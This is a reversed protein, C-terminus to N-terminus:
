PTTTAAARGAISPLGGAPPATATALTFAFTSGRGPESTVWVTGGMQEVFTRVVALDVVLAYLAFGLLMATLVTRDSSAM